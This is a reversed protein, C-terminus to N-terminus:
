WGHNMEKCKEIYQDHMIRVLGRIGPDVTGDDMIRQASARSLYLIEKDATWSYSSGSPFRDTIVNLKNM